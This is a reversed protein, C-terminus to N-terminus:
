EMHKTKLLPRYQPYNQAAKETLYQATIKNGSWKLKMKTVETMYVYNYLEGVVAVQKAVIFDRM